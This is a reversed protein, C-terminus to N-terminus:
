FNIVNFSLKQGTQKQAISNIATDTLQLVRPYGGTTQSDRMLVILQGSPTLQVTGPLVPATIIPSLNNLVRENLQIAMRNRTNSITFDANQLMKKQEGTLQGFEPGKYARLLSSTDISFNMSLSSFQKEFTDFSAYPVETNKKLLQQDTISTYFSRSNLVEPTLFGSKIGVYGYVGKKCYNMKLVDGPHVLIRRCMEVTNGNLFATTFAGTLSVATPESFQLVPPQMTWEICAANQDNGLLSNAMDFSLQDMAGSKPVGYKSFGFRGKDQVTTFFGPKIIKVKGMM